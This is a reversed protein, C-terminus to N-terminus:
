NKVKTNDLTRINLERERERKEVLLCLKKLKEKEKVNKKGQVLSLEVHKQNSALNRRQFM